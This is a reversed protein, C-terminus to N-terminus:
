DGIRIAKIWGDVIVEKDSPYLYLSITKEENINDVINTINMGVYGKNDYASSAVGEDMINGLRIYYRLDSGEYYVKGVIIYKGAPLTISNLVTEVNKNAVVNSFNKVYYQANPFYNELQTNVETKILNQLETKTMSIISDDNNNSVDSIKVGNISALQLAGNIEFEYPYEKLKTFISKKDEVKIKDLSASKKSELVVYEMEEDECLKDALYQLTPLEGKETYSTIQANTIKLNMIEAAQSKNNEEKTEKAKNLLGNDGTLMVISTGALILLVVITVVLAILTIGSIKRNKM